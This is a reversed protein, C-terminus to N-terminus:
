RCASVEDIGGGSLVSRVLSHNLLKGKIFGLLTWFSLEHHFAMCLNGRILYWPVWALARVASGFLHRPIGAFYVVRGRQHHDRMGESASHGFYWRRFYKRTLRHPPVLHYVSLDPVHRGVIRHALLRQYFDVDEMSLLGKDTRGAYSSYGGVRAFTSRRLVANGGMLMGPFDKNFESYPGPPVLALVCEYDPPLWVPPPAGWEPLQCGGIFEIRPDSFERGITKYWSPDVAEDDDLFAVLDGSSSEMGCCRAYASGQRKETVVCIPVASSEALSAVMEATGDKSNNDVVVVIVELGVPIEAVQLSLLTRKLIERRNYTPIVVALTKARHESETYPEKEAVALDPTKGSYLPLQAL